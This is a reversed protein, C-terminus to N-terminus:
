ETRHSGTAIQNGDPIIATPLSLDDEKAIALRQCQLPKTLAEQRRADAIHGGDDIDGVIVDGFGTDFQVVGIVNDLLDEIM